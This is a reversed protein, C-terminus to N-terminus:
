NKFLRMGLQKLVTLLDLFLDKLLSYLLLVGESLVLQLMGHECVGLLVLRDRCLAVVCLCDVRAEFCLDRVPGCVLCAKLLVLHFQLSIQRFVTEFLGIATSYGQVLM